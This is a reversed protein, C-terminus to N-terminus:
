RPKIFNEREREREYHSAVVRSVAISVHILQVCAVAAAATSATAAPQTFTPLGPELSEALVCELLRMPSHMRTSKSSIVDCAVVYMDYVALTYRLTGHVCLM